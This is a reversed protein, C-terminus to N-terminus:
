QKEGRKKDYYKESRWDYFKGKSIHYIENSREDEELRVGCFPCFTISVNKYGKETKKPTSAHVDHVYLPMDDIQERVAEKTYRYSDNCIHIYGEQSDFNRYLMM